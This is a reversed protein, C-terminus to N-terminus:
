DTCRCGGGKPTPILYTLRTVRSSRAWRSRIRRGYLEGLITGAAIAFLAPTYGWGITRGVIPSILAGVVGLVLYGRATKDV